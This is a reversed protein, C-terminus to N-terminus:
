AIRLVHTGKTWTLNADGALAGSDNFIVQTNAGPVSGLDSYSLQGPVYRTGNARLVYGATNGDSHIVGVGSGIYVDGWRFSPSGLNLGKNVSPYLAAATLNLEQTGGIYM